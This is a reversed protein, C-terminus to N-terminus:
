VYFIFAYIFQFGQIKCTKGLRYEMDTGSAVEQKRPIKRPGHQMGAYLEYFVNIHTEILHQKGNACAHDEVVEHCIDRPIAQPSRLVQRQNGAFHPSSSHLVNPCIPNLGLIDDGSYYAKICFVPALRSEFDSFKGIPIPIGHEFM